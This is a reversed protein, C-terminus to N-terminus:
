GDPNTQKLRKLLDTAMQLDEPRSDKAADFLLRMDKDEFLRQAMMATNNDEYYRMSPDDTWTMLYAPTTQLVAALKDIISAPVKEIEASEYRYITARSVGLADAVDDVSIGLQKRRNKIREYITMEEMIM